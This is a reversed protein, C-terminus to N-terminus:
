REIAARRTCRTFVFLPLARGLLMALMLCVMGYPYLNSSQQMGSVLNRSTITENMGSSVNAGGVAAAADLLADAFTAPPQFASATLTELLLMGLAVVLTLGITLMLLALAAAVFRGADAPAHPQPPSLARTCGACAALLLLLTLGGPSVMAGGMLVTLALVAKTGDSVGREALSETSAGLGAVASVLASARAVRLGIPAATLSTDSERPASRGRPSELAAVLGALLLVAAIYAAGLQLLWVRAAALTRVATAAPVILAAVLGLGGVLWRAADGAPASLWGLGSALAVGSWTLSPFDLPTSQLAANAAMAGLSIAHLLLLAALLVLTSPILGAGADPTARWLAARLAFVYCLMGGVGIGLLTWRGRETYDERLDYTLWGAGSAASVADFTAQWYHRSWYFRMDKAHQSTSADHALLWAGGGCLPLLLIFYWSAPGLRRIM